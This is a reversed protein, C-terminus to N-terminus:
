KTTKVFVGDWAAPPNAKLEVCRAAMVAPPPHPAAHPYAIARWAADAAAFDGARYRALAAEYQAPYALEAPSATSKAAILDYIRIAQDKGKVKIWDLECLVFHEAIARRTEEGVVIKCGYDDPVGELRAAINVTEGIATYNYRGPAGVNGVVAPGTNLGMKVSYGPRGAADAEQKARLVVALGALAAEAGHVAHDLDPVPAGWVAMVADGIFKDVYGGTREVEAVLLGLYQNTVETLVEPGVRSSLATFGSLDAFMLTVQRPEGGLRLEADSEALANVVFPSIYQSFAHQVRRRRREEAVFRAVYALVMAGAGGGAPVAVPFWFGLPLALLAIGFLAVVLLAVGAAALLPSLLFGCVAGVVGALAATVARGVLPLPRVLNGTMVEEVAAAHAFVGPVTQSEWDSAGLRPLSCDAGPAGVSSARGEPPPMFRDPARKRDESALNTGVLVIKGAFTQRIAAPDRDICRLVDILRYTPIAELPGAPALLMTPPMAPGQARTLIAAALTPLVDGGASVIAPRMQRQVGDADPFIEAYAIGGPSAKGADAIPDYIAGIFPFAPADRTTRALVIRDRAKAIASRFDLEQQKDFGPFLSASFKFIVDFGIARVNNDTLGGVLKTWSETFFVVPTAALEPSDLSDSDIAIVAVPEGDTGPRRDTAALSLDYLLGDIASMRSGTVLSAATALAAAALTVAVRYYRTAL